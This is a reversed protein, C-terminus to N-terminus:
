KSKQNILCLFSVNWVVDKFNEYYTLFSFIYDPQEIDLPKKQKKKNDSRLYRYIHDIIVIACNRAIFCQFTTISVIEHM